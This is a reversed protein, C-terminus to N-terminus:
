PAGLSMTFDDLQPSYFYYSTHLLQCVLFISVNKFTFCEYFTDDFFLHIHKHLIYIQTIYTNTFSHTHTNLFTHTHPTILTYPFTRTHICTHPVHINTHTYPFIQTFVHTTHKIHIYQFTHTHTSICSHLNTHSQM